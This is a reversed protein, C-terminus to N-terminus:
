LMTAMSASDHHLRTTAAPVRREDRCCYGSGHVSSSDAVQGAKEASNAAKSSSPRSRLMRSVCHLVCSQLLRLKASTTVFIQSSMNKRFNCCCGQKKRLVVRGDEPTTVLCSAGNSPPKSSCLRSQCCHTVSFLAVNALASWWAGGVYRDNISGECSSVSEVQAAPKPNPTILSNATQIQLKCLHIDTRNVASKRPSATQM